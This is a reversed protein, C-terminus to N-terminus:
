FSWISSFKQRWGEEGSLPQAKINGQLNLHPLTQYWPVSLSNSPAKQCLTQPQSPLLLTSKCPLHPRYTSPPLHPRTSTVPLLFPCASRGLFDQRPPRFILPDLTTRRVRPRISGHSPPCKRHHLTSPPTSGPPPTGCGRTRTGPSPPSPRPSSCPTSSPTPTETRTQCTAPTVGRRWPELASILQHDVQCRVM